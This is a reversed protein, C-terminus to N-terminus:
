LARRGDRAVRSRVQGRRLEPALVLRALAKVHTSRLASYNGSTPKLRAEEEKSFIGYESMEAKSKDLIKHRDHHM